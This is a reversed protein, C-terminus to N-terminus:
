SPINVKAVRFHQLSMMLFFSWSFTGIIKWQNTVVLASLLRGSTIFFTKLNFNCFLQSLYYEEKFCLVGYVIEETGRFYTEM